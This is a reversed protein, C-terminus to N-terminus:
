VLKAWKRDVSSELGIFNWAKRYLSVVCCVTVVTLGLTEGRIGRYSGQYFETRRLLRYHFDEASIQQTVMTPREGM